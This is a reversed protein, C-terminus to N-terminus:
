SNIIDKEFLYNKISQIAQVEDIGIAKIYIKSGPKIGLSLIDMISKASYKLNITEGQYTLFIDSKFKHAISVLLTAPRAFGAEKNITLQQKIM